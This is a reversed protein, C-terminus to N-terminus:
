ASSQGLSQLPIAALRLLGGAGISSLPRAGCHVAMLREFVAPQQQLARLFRDRVAPRREAYLLLRTLREPRRRIAASAAAYSTLDGEVLAKALAEGEQLAIGLGEGTIADVYGGADGVLAVNGRVVAEVRQELPGAGRDESSKGVGQFRLRLEPFRELVRDVDLREGSGSGRWLLAVGVEDHAVPTVYAECRDGWWVEVQNSWPAVRYHRRIGFRHHNSKAVRIGAQRRVRSHLGDAGVVWRARVLEGGIRVGEASIENARTQWRLKAGAKEAARALADQLALRRVGLGTFGSPFSAGVDVGAAACRYRVGRLPWGRLEALPIALRKLAGVGPALIGEGCAKDIPPRRSDFLIVRLGARAAHIATGLGAPGGGVIALDFETPM